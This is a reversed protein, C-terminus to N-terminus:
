RSWRAAPSTWAWTSAGAALGVLIALNLLTSIYIAIKRKGIFDIHTKEKLPNM